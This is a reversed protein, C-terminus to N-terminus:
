MIRSGSQCITGISLYSDPSITHVPGALEFRTDGGSAEGEGAERETVARGAEGEEVVLDSAEEAGGRRAHQHGGDTRGAVPVGGAPGGALGAFQSAVFSQHLLERELEIHLDLTGNLCNLLSADADLEHPQM